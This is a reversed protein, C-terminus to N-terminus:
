TRCCGETCQEAVEGRVASAIATHTDYDSERTLARSRRVVQTRGPAPGRPGRGGVPRREPGHRHPGGVGREQGSPVRDVVRPGPLSRNGDLEVQIVARGEIAREDEGRGLQLPQVLLGAAEDVCM